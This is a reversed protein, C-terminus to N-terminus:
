YDLDLAACLYDIFPGAIACRRAFQEPFDRSCAMKQTLQSSAVFDKRKLDDLLEHDPDFGRPPRTLTRGGMVFHKQFSKDYLAKKWANPNDVLFQRLQALVKSDPHWIGCGVFVNRPELHLYFVPAPKRRGEVHRFRAAAWSKYPTKDKSFRTDRYIRFMSGGNGRPDCVFETSVKALPESLNEIFSLMPTKLDAEYREKNEQFWPRNNNAKLEKLFAFSKPSFM